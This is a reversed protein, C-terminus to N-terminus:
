KRRRKLRQPGRFEELTNERKFREIEKYTVFFRGRKEFHMLAGIRLLNGVTGVSCGLAKAAGAQDTFGSM